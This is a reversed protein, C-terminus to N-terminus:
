DKYHLNTNNFGFKPDLFRFIHFGVRWLLEQMKVLYRWPHLKATALELWQLTRFLNIALFDNSAYFFPVTLSVTPRSLLCRFTAPCRLRFICQRLEWPLRCYDGVVDCTSLLM